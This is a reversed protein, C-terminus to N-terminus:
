CAPEKGSAGGPFGWIRIDQPLKTGRELHGSAWARLWGLLWPGEGPSRPCQRFRADWQNVAWGHPLVSAGERLGANGRWSSFMKIALRSMKEAGEAFMRGIDREGSRASKCTKSNVLSIFVPFQFCSPISPQTPHVEGWPWFSPGLARRACAAEEM